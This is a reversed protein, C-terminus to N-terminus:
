KGNECCPEWECGADQASEFPEDGFAQVATYYVDALTLCRGRSLMFIGPIKDCAKQIGKRLSSDCTNKDSGCTGYCQDHTNCAVNFDVWQFHLLSLYDADPVLYTNWGSGCGNESPTYETKSRNTRCEEGGNEMKRKRLLGLIDIDALPSNSLYVYGANTSEVPDVTLWRGEVSSYHRYNYYLLMLRCDLIESSFSYKNLTQGFDFTLLSGFPTYAYQATEVDSVVDTVNKNGDHFYYAPSNGNLGVIPRTAVPETPDWVTTCVNLYGDYVFTDGGSRVRRGRSDYAMELMMNDTPRTWRVPRNEGNYEVLWRGTETTIGTQNGDDDFVPHEMIGGRVIETYQNLNNATYTTNTGFERSWLRNGIDDYCYAFKAGTVVNTALILEGRTNYGYWEDNKSIRRGAADYAYRYVSHTANSVLTLLDRKPEYEWRVIDGNPYTLSEKLDSGPLYSWVFENTSGAARMSAIRGTDPEYSLTTRREGNLAYGLLRGFSDYFREIVNTGAIGVVTENTLAGFADYAFTTVGAADYTESLRGMADYFVAISPTGDSYATNTLNGWGDYAYLTDIGRAWTRKTLNGNACYGYTPGRGDAYVKNTMVGSAEDYLWTTVEGSGSGLSENRYTMMMTKSGFVDYAYRVPYTAGGEYTKRGRLDYQYVVMDGLPNTVAVLQGLADYAYVTRNGLADVSASRRGNADYETRTVNGRGDAKAIQRLLSDYIYTNTVSSVSVEMMNVGYRMKMESINSASPLRRFSTKIAGEFRSWREEVNGHIDTSTASYPMTATLGTLREASATVLSTISDDSCSKTETRTRWVEGNSISYATQTWDRRWEDTGNAMRTTSDREGLSDYGYEVTPEFDSEVRVLRGYADFTQVTALVAGRFGSREALVVQGFMNKCTKMFRSAADSEGRVVRIWRTGDADVGYAHFEPTVATGTISLTKGDANRSVVHLAGNPHATTASLGDRSYTLLTENGDVDTQGAVRGLPEYRIRTAPLGVQAEFNTQWTAIQRGLGDYAYCTTLWTVNTMDLPILRSSAILRGDDDYDYTTVTGDHQTESTKRCCDWVTETVQGALNEKRVLKGEPNYSLRDRAIIHWEGAVLAETRKEVTEGRGNTVTIDRTTKGDVPVSSLEHLHMVTETWLGGALSYAYADVTGDEHRVSRVLGSRVDGDVIPWYATVTRLVNTGGYAAGQTGVREVIDTLTSYVFYTRECEIGDLTKVIARPRSDVPPVVDSPDVSDYSYLVHEDMMDPGTKTESVKRGLADYGHAMTLGSQRHETAIRGKGNGATVYTWSTMDTVGGFGEICNTMAFGWSEWKYNMEKRSLMEGSSSLVEKVVRASKTDTITREKQEQVGSPRTLSWDGRIYDFVYVNPDAAGSRISVLARRDGNSRSVSLHKMPQVSPPVYLGTAADKAPASQLPYVTVDYGNTRAVVDALRSPTLFQRVGDIGYIIDIGMDETTLTRGRSNRVHIMKGRAGTMDTALFRRVTGDGEYLDYYVPDSSTAWGEADTMQLREDMKVHIGPDPCGLSEGEKFIFHVPEGNPHSFVVEAPTRGDPLVKSGIRKFTYGMVAYLSEPTFVAPSMDDAFVKLACPMAGSWPTTRGLDLHVKICDDSAEDDSSCGCEQTDSNCESPLNKAESRGGFAAFPVIALFVTAIHVNFSRMNM